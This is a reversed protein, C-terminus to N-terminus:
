CCDLKWGLYLSVLGGILMWLDRRGMEGNGRRLRGLVFFEREGPLMVRKKAGLDRM